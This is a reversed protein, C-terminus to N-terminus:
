GDLAAAIREKMAAVAAGSFPPVSRPAVGFGLANATVARRHTFTEFGARGHYAGMGSQGVGGFPVGEVGFHLAMDNRTVGGSTTLRLFERFEPTDEGYWYAALPHPRANVYAIAERPDDYPLVSIVPGFVEEHAVEMDDTVGLLLTPPIRRGASDRGTDSVATVARAGRAVADDILHAVRAYNADNVITTVEPNDRYTPFYRAMHRQYAAVFDDVASRPVFVYDPCLCLQGGNMMRSAAIREAATDVDADSAVVVPNKGGLELTVPVLNAGAAAAVRRGVAPSGTFFLHDFALSSFAVATRLGGEVVTVEEPALHEAVARAFVAATRAPVDSFKIMVRNGAALAELAPQVVLAIPFNWPGIVGVVGKPRKQVFTPTGREASGPVPEDAAWEELDRRIESVSPLFGLIDASLSAAEPRNGFDANLAAVLDDAHTLVARVLRDVRDLRVRVSPPGEELFASRQADLLAVLEVESVDASTPAATHDVTM